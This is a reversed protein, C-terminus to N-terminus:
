SWCEAVSPPVRLDSCHHRPTGAHFTLMTMDVHYMHVVLTDSHCLLMICM